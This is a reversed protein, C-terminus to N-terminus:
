ILINRYSYNTRTINDGKYLYLTEAGLGFDSFKMTSPVVSQIKYLLCGIGILIIAILIYISKRLTM